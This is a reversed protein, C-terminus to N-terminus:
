ELRRRLMRIVRKLSGTPILKCDYGPIRAVIEEDVRFTVDGSFQKIDQQPELVGEMELLEGAQVDRRYEIPGRVGAFLPLLDKAGRIKLFGAGLTQAGAEILRDLTMSDFNNQNKPEFNLGPISAVETKGIRVSVDSSKDPSASAVDAAAAVIKHGPLVSIGFEPTFHGSTYNKTVELFSTGISSEIVLNDGPLVPIKFEVPGRIGSLRYKNLIRATDVTDDFYPFYSYTDKEQARYFGFARRGDFVVLNRFYRTMEDYMPLAKPMEDKRIQPPGVFVIEEDEFNGEAMTAIASAMDAITPLRGGEATQEVKAMAEKDMRALLRVTTTDSIAHGCVSGFKIHKGDREHLRNYYRASQKLLREGLKKGEAVPDYQPLQEISTHQFTSWLSPVDIVVVKDNLVGVEEAGDLLYQKSYGNVKLHYHPDKEMLDKEMGGAHNFIIGDIGGFNQKIQQLLDYRHNPNTADAIPAIMRGGIAEVQRVVQAARSDKGPDRHPGIITAGRKALEIATAAGIGRSAGTLLYVKGTLPLPERIEATVGALTQDPASYIGLNIEKDPGM